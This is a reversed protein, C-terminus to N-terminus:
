QYFQLLIWGSASIEALNTDVSM